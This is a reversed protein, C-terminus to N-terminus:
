CRASGYPRGRASLAAIRTTWSRFHRLSEFVAARDTRPSVAHVCRGSQRPSPSQDTPRPPQQWPNADRRARAFGFDVLICCMEPPLKFRPQDLFLNDGLDHSFCSWRRFLKSPLISHWDAANIVLRSNGPLESGFSVVLGTDSRPLQRINAMADAVDPKDLAYRISSHRADRMSRLGSKKM